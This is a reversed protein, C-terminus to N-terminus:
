ESHEPESVLQFLINKVLGHSIHPILYSSSKQLQYKLKALIKFAWPLFLAIPSSAPSHWNALVAM